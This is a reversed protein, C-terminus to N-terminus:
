IFSGPFRVTKNEIFEVQRKFVHRLRSNFPNSPDPAVVHCVSCECLGSSPCSLPNSPVAKKILLGICGHFAQFKHSLCSVQLHFLFKWRSLKCRSLLVVKEPTGNREFFTSHIVDFLRTGNCRSRFKRFNTTFPLCCLFNTGFFHGFASWIHDFKPNRFIIRAAANSVKQLRDSRYKPVGFLLSNCYDLHSTVFAYCKPWSFSRM